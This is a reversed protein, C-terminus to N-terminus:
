QAAVAAGAGAKQQLSKRLENEIEIAARIQPRRQMRALYDVLVPWQRVDVGGYRLAIGGRAEDDVPDAVAEGVQRATSANSLVAFSISLIAALLL